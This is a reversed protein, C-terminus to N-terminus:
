SFTAGPLFCSRASCVPIWPLGSLPLWGLSKAWCPAQFPLPGAFLSSTPSTGGGFWGLCGGGVCKGLYVGCPMWCSGCNFFAHPISGATGLLGPQSSWLMLPVHCHGPKELCLCFEACPNAVAQRIWYVIHSHSLGVRSACFFPPPPAFLM